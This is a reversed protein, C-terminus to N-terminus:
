VSKQYARLQSNDIDWPRDGANVPRVKDICHQLTHWSVEFNIDIKPVLVRAFDLKFGKIFGDYVTGNYQVKITDPGNDKIDQRIKWAENQISKNM